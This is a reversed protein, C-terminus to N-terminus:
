GGQSALDNLSWDYGYDNISDVGKLQTRLEDDAYIRIHGLVGGDKAFDSRFWNFISSVTVGSQDVRVARPHNVYDRAAKDLLRATNGATFAVTQLDPCGVSACNVVYHIRPDAWIPRLIRHEIDDLGLKEGQVKLLKKKWPGDAFLGPSIDIDRISKVPYHDLVVRVTLSNYLNVWYAFQQPRSYGDIDLATLGNIYNALANKDADSVKGYGIRTMGDTSRNVYTGLFGNWAAHDIQRQDAADHQQWRPWLEADPAFLRELASANTLGPLLVLWVLLAPFAVWRYGFRHM